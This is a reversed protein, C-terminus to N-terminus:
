IKLPTFDISFYNEGNETYYINDVVVNLLVDLNYIKNQRTDGPQGLHTQELQHKKEDSVVIVSKGSWKASNDMYINETDISNGGVLIPQNFTQKTQKKYKINITIVNM